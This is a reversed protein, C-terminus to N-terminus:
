ACALPGRAERPNARTAGGACDRRSDRASDRRSSVEHRSGRSAAHSGTNRRSGRACTLPGCRGESAAAGSASSRGSGRARVRAGRIAGTSRAGQAAAGDGIWSPQHRARGRRSLWKDDPRGGARLHASGAVPRRSDHRAGEGIDAHRWGTLPPLFARNQYWLPTQFRHGVVVPWCQTRKAYRPHRPDPAQPRARVRQLSRPLGYAPGAVAEAAIPHQQAGPQRGRVRRHVGDPDRLQM